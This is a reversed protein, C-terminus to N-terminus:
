DQPSMVDIEVTSDGTGQSFDSMSMRTSKAKVTNFVETIETIVSMDVEAATLVNVLKDASEKNIKEAIATKMNSIAGTKAKSAEIELKKNAQEFKSTVDALKAEYNVKDDKVQGQLTAKDGELGNVKDTLASVSNILKDIQEQSANKVKDSMTTEKTNTKLKSDTENDRVRGEKAKNKFVRRVNTYFNKQEETINKSSAAIKSEGVSELFEEEDDRIIEDVIRFDVSEQADMWIDKGYWLDNIDEATHNTNKALIEVLRNQVDKADELDAEIESVKGLAWTSVEHIMTKSDEGIYRNEGVSALVAASSDAEGLVLTNVKSKVAKIGDLISFLASVSGGWSNIIIFIPENSEADMTFLKEVVEKASDRFVDEFFFITRNINFDKIKDIM